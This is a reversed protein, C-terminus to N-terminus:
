GIDISKGPIFDGFGVYLFVGRYDLALDSVCTDAQCSDKPFNKFISYYGGLKHCRKVPALFFGEANRCSTKLEFLYTKQWFLMFIVLIVGLM